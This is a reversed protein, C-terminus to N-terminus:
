RRQFSFRFHLLLLDLLPPSSALWLDAELFKVYILTFLLSFRFEFTAVFISSRTSKWLQEFIHLCIPHLPLIISNEPFKYFRGLLKTTVDICLKSASTQFFILKKKCLFSKVAWKFKWLSFFIKKFRKKDIDVWNHLSFRSFYELVSIAM